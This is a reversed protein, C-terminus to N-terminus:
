SPCVVLSVWWRVVTRLWLLATAMTRGSERRGFTWDFLSRQRVYVHDKAWYTDLFASLRPYDDLQAYRVELSM